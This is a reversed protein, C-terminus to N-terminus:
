TNSYPQNLNKRPFTAAAVAGEAYEARLLRIHLPPINHSAFVGHYKVRYSLYTFFELTSQSVCLLGSGIRFVESILGQKGRASEGGDRGIFPLVLAVMECSSVYLMLLM